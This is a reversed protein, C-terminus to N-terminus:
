SKGLISSVSVPDVGTIPLEEAYLGASIVSSGVIMRGYGVPVPHGQATTNVPGDFIYSPKNEPRETPTQMNPAPSLMQTVGGLVMSTGVTYLTAQSMLAGAAAWAMPNYWAVALIAAGLLVQGVGGGAGSLVPVIHITQSVPHHLQGVDIAPARDALVRYGVGRESSSSLVRAFDAFNACLARVAEAASAVELRHRRGFQRGLEGLLIVTKM